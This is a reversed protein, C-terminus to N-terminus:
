ANCDQVIQQLKDNLVPLIEEVIISNLKIETVEAMLQASVHQAEQTLRLCEAKAAENIAGVPDLPEAQLTANQKVVSASSPMTFENGDGDAVIINGDSGDPNMLDEPEYSEGPAFLKTRVGARTFENLIDHVVDPAVEPQIYIIKTLDIGTFEDQMNMNINFDSIDIPNVRIEPQAMISEDLGAAPNIISSIRTGSPLRISSTARRAM